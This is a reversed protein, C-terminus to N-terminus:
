RRFLSEVNAQAAVERNVLEKRAIKYLFSAGFQDAPDLEVIKNLRAIADEVRGLRLLLYAAAKLALMYFRILAMPASASEFLHQACLESWDVTLGLNIASM